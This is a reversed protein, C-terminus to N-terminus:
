NSLFKSILEQKYDEQIKYSESRTHLPRWDNEGTSSFNHYKRVRVRSWDTKYYKCPYDVYCVKGNRKKYYERKNVSIEDGIYKSQVMIKTEVLVAEMEKLYNITRQNYHM